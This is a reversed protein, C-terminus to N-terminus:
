GMTLSPWARANFTGGDCGAPPTSSPSRSRQLLPPPRPPKLLRCGQPVPAAAELLLLGLVRKEKTWLFFRSSRERAAPCTGPDDYVKFGKTPKLQPLGYAGTCGSYVHPCAPLM